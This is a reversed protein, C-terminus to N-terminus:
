GPHFCCQKVRFMTLPLLSVFNRVSRLHVGRTRKRSEVLDCLPAVRSVAREKVWPAVPRRRQRGQIGSKEALISSSKRAVRSCPKYRSMGNDSGPVWPSLRSFRAVQYDTPTPCQCGHTVVTGVIPLSGGSRLPVFGCTFKKLVKGPRTQHRPYTSWVRSPM